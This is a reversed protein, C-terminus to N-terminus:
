VPISFLREYIISNLELMARAGALLERFDLVGQVSLVYCRDSGCPAIIEFDASPSPDSVMAELDISDVMKKLCFFCPITFSTSDGNFEVVLRNSKNSQYVIGNATSFLEVIEEKVTM